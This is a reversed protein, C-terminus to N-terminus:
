STGAKIIRTQIRTGNRDKEVEIEAGCDCYGYYVVLDKIIEGAKLFISNKNCSPCIM